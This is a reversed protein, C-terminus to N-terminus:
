GQFKEPADISFPARFNGSGSCRNFISSRFERIRLAPLFCLGSIGQGPADTSFPVGNKGSVSCLHFVAGWFELAQDLDGVELVVHNIGLVRAKRPNTAGEGDM